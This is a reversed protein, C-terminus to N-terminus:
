VSNGARSESNIIEKNQDSKQLAGEDKEECTIGMYGAPCKQCQVLGEETITCSGNESFHQNKYPHLVTLAIRAPANSVITSRDKRRMEMSALNAVNANVEKRITNM